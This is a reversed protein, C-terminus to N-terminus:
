KVTYGLRKFLSVSPPTLRYQSIKDLAIWKLIVLDGGPRMAVNKADQNLDIRYVNFQMHCLVKEGTTRLIKEASHIGTTDIFLKQYSSVDIGVEEMIERSLAEEKTEGEDIGGGPIHWCDAYVGGSDVDKAGM